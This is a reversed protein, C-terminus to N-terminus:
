FPNAASTQVETGNVLWGSQVRQARTRAAAVDSGSDPESM